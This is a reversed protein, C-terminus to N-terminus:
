SVCSSKPPIMADLLAVGASRPGVAIRPCGCLVAARDNPWRYGDIAVLQYADLASERNVWSRRCRDPILEDGQAAM